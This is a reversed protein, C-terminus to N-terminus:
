EQWGNTEWWTSQGQLRGRCSSWWWTRRTTTHYEGWLVPSVRVCERGQFSWRRLAPWLPALSGFAGEEQSGRDVKDSWAPTSSALHRLVVWTQIGWIGVRPSSQTLRLPPMGRQAILMRANKYRLPDRSIEALRESSYMIYHYCKHTTRHITRGVVTCLVSQQTLITFVFKNLKM